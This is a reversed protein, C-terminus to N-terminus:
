GADAQAVSFGIMGILGLAGLYTFVAIHSPAQLHSISNILSAIQEFLPVIGQIMMTLALGAMIFVIMVLQPLMNSREPLQKFVRESFGEDPIDVRHTSFLKRFDKDNM